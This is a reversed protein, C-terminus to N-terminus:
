VIELSAEDRRHAAILHSGEKAAREIRGRLADSRIETGDFDSEVGFLATAATQIGFFGMLPRFQHELALGHLASGGTATIIATKGAMGERSVLDFYHKLVGTYTGRFIPSGIILLDAREASCVLEEGRESIDQRWIGCFIERWETGLNVEEVRAGRVNRCVAAATDRLLAGTRGGASPSGNITVILCM